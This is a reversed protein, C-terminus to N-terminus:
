FNWGPADKRVPPSPHLLARESASKSSRYRSAFSLRVSGLRARQEAADCVDGPLDRGKCLRGCSLAAAVRWFLLASQLPRLSLFTRCLVYYMYIHWGCLFTTPLCTCAIIAMGGNEGGEADARKACRRKVCTPPKVVDGRGVVRNVRVRECSVEIGRQARVATVLLSPTCRWRWRTHCVSM